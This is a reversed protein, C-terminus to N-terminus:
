VQLRTGRPEGGPSASDTVRASSATRAREAKFQALTELPKKGIDGGVGRAPSASGLFSLQLAGPGFKGRSSFHGTKRESTEPPSDM